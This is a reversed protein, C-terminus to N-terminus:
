MGDGDHAAEDADHVYNPDSPDLREMAGTVPCVMVNPDNPDLTEEVAAEASAADVPESGKPTTCAALVSVSAALLLTSTARM